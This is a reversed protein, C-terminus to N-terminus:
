WRFATSGADCALRDLMQRARPADLFPISVGHGTKGAGATDVNLSAMDLRRDFPSQRLSVAQIKAFSVVSMRRVWWGSRFAVANPMLAYGAFRVYQRAHNWVLGTGLTLLALAWWRLPSFAAVTTLLAVVFLGKRFIRGRARPDLPQWSLEGLEIEPLVDRLLDGLDDVRILPALWLRDASREDENSSGGATEIQVATRRCWRHMPRQRTTLTQIRRRPVAATIRTLLGYEVRLDDGSRRLTFGYFKVLTWVVSFIRILAIGVFVLALGFLISALPGPSQPISDAAGGLLKQISARPDDWDWFDFQWMVGLAAAVLAMGRNSILGFLILEANPLALLTKGRGASRAPTEIPGSEGSDISDRGAFVHARLTAVSNLSLVRIVAEPKDGSATQLRVEAVGLMRHLPNQVLDINQIRSYLIHRENRTVIGERVVMEDPALRYRYTFYRVLAAIATPIFFLAFWIEYNSGRSAFLLIVAPLLLRQGASGLSFILSAPHLRRNTASPAVEDSPTTV